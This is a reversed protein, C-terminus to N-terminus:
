MMIELNDLIDQQTENLSTKVNDLVINDIECTQIRISKLHEIIQSFTWRRNKGIKDKAFFNILLKQMYWRIYYALMCIFVHARIRDDLHHFIPRINLHATKIIRFASEVNTLQKYTQVVEKSNLVKESVDTRIVYCGDLASEEDIKSKNISFILKDKKTKWHFFKETKYKKWLKGLSINIKQSTKNKKRNQIKLLEKATKDILSKRTHFDQKKRLPNYCLIYRISSNCPDKVEAYSGEKFLKPSIVKKQILKLIQMRTLATITKFGQSNVEAIRKPTLMGRDGVFIISKIKYDKLIKEVQGKVTMQDPTNGPFVEIAIPCGKQDTLLGINVQEFGKKRDRNYGFAVLESEDYEGELYSSTLDYLVITGTKLHRKALKEQITKQRELLKDMPLYCNKEVDPKINPLHGCLEWLITETFLNTLALKSGQYVLRGIIMAIVDNKWQAKKFYLIKDLQLKRIISLITFSAGYERSYKIKLKTADFAQSDEKIIKKIQEIKPKPLKSINSLTRHLVKRKKRFSERILITTYVKKGRKSKIEEVYMSAVM